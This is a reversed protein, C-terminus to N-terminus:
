LPDPKEVTKKTSALEIIHVTKQVDYDFFVAKYGPFNNLIHQREAIDAALLSTSLVETDICSFGLVSVFLSGKVPMGTKPNIIHGYTNFNDEHITCGSNSLSQNVLTFTYISDTKNIAHMINVKWANGYPHKGMGYISSDGFNVFAREISFKKFLLIIQELAYGKAFAGFDLQTGKTKFFVTQNKEDLVIIETGTLNRVEAINKESPEFVTMRFGHKINWLTLLPACTIDFYGRTTHYYDICAQMAKYLLPQVKMPAIHAGTNIKHVDSNPIHRSFINELRILENHVNHSLETLLDNPMEPIVAEFRTGMSYYSIHSVGDAM